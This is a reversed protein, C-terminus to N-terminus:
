SRPPGKVDFDLTQAAGTVDVEQANGAADEPIYNPSVPQGQNAKALAEAEERTKPTAGVRDGTVLAKFKGASAKDAAYRGDVIKAGFPTGAGGSPMFSITGSAVPEGNYTVAGELTSGSKSSCGVLATMALLALGVVGVARVM